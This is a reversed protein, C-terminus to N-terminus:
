PWRWLMARWCCQISSPAERSPARPCGITRNLLASTAEPGLSWASSPGVQLRFESTPKTLAKLIMASRTELPSRNLCCVKRARLALHDARENWRHGRHAKWMVKNLHVFEAVEAWLRQVHAVLERNAKAKWAAPSTAQMPRIQRILADDGGEVLLWRLAAAFGSLEAHQKFRSRGLSSREMRTPKFWVLAEHHLEGSGKGLGSDGDIVM